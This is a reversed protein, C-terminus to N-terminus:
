CKPHHNDVDIIVMWFASLTVDVVVYTTVREVTDCVSSSRISFFQSSPHLPANQLEPYVNVHRWTAIVNFNCTSREFTTTIITVSISMKPRTRRPLVWSNKCSSSM